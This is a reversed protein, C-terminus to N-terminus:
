QVRIIEISLGWMSAEVGATSPRFLLDVDKAGATTVDVYFVRTFGHAQNTGRGDPNGGGSDQPEQVHIYEQGTGDDEGLFVGDFSAACKFDSGTSDLAWNYSIM